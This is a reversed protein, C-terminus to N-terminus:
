NSKFSLCSIAIRECSLLTNMDAPFLTLSFDLAIKSQVDDM